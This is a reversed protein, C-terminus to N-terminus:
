VCFRFMRQHLIASPVDNKPHGWSGIYETNWGTARGLELLEDRTYDLRGKGGRYHGPIDHRSEEPAETFTAYLDSKHDGIFKRFLSLCKEIESPPMHTFVSNAITFRPRKSLADFEFSDSIVFEPRRERFEELGLEYKIGRYVVEASIDIGLYNGPELFRIFHIGGRLSGCGLDLFPDGPSLGRSKMFDLQFRCSEEFPQTSGASKGVYTRHADSRRFWSLPNWSRRLSGFTSPAWFPDDFTHTVKFQELPLSKYALFSPSVTPSNM